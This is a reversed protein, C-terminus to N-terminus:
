VIDHVETVNTPEDVLQPDADVSASDSLESEQESLISLQSSTLSADSISEREHDAEQSPGAGSKDKKGQTEELLKSDTNDAASGSNAGQGDGLKGEAKLLQIFKDGYQSFLKLAVAEDM